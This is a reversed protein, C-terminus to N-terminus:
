FTSFITREKRKPRQYEAKKAKPKNFLAKLVNFLDNERKKKTKPRQDKARKAKPRNFLAKLVYLIDYACWTHCTLAHGSVVIM